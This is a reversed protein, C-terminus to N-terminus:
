FQPIDASSAKVKLKIFISFEFNSVLILLTFEILSLLDAM